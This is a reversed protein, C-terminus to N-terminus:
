APEALRSEIIEAARRLVDLDAGADARAARRLLHLAASHLLDATRHPKGM